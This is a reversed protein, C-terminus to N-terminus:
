LRRQLVDMLDGYGQARWFAQGSANRAAVRVELRRAGQARAWRTAADALAAGVGRRRAAPDVFLDSIEARCGEALIEPARDVRVTAYGALGRTGDAVFIATDSRALQDRLLARM